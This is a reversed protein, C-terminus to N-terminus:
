LQKFSMWSKGLEINLSKENIDKKIEWPYKKYKESLAGPYQGSTIKQWDCDLNFCNSKILFM